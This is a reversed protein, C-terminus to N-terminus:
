PAAIKWPMVPLADGARFEPLRLMAGPLVNLTEDEGVTLPLPSILMPAFVSVSPPLRVEVPTLVNLVIEALVCSNPALTLTDPAIVAVPLMVVAAVTAPKVPTNPAPPAVM